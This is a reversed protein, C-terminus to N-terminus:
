AGPVRGTISSLEEAGRVISELLETINGSREVVPGLGNALDGVKRESGEATGISEDVGGVTAQLLRDSEDGASSIRRDLYAGGALEGQARDLVDQLEGRDSEAQEVGRRADQIVGAGGEVLAIARGLERKAYDLEYGGHSWRGLIFVTLGIAAVVGLRIAWVKKRNGDYVYYGRM